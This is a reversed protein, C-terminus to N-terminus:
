AITTTGETVKERASGSTTVINVLVTQESVTKVLMRHESVTKVFVRQGSLIKVLM